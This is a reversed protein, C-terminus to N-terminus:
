DLHIVAIEPRDGTRMPPGWTGAGSSTYVTYDGEVHLGRYYKGYVRWTVFQFPFIQGHHTHGALQLSIGAAKAQAIHAPAHYLLISPRRPDFGALKRIAQGLDRSLGREPYSLGVIQLGNLVVMEDSLIRVKTKRLAAYARETGLYTEHNGTVFYTGLPARLGDLPRVLEELRGDAGDFLDGTIFVASPEEANIREVQRALFASGVVHGLHVDTLQVVKKGQWEPPLNKVNVHIHVMRPHRANWAGYGSYLLGLVVGAAGFWVRGPRQPLLMAGGWAAWALALFIVLTLGIGIWLASSFYVAQFVPGQFRRALFSTAIFSAPLIFLLLALIARRRGVVSFFHVISYYIFYHTLFIILLGLVFFPIFLLLGRSM